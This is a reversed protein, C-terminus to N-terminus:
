SNKTSGAIIASSMDNSIKFKKDNEYLKLSSELHKQVRDSDMCMLIYLDGRKPDQWMNKRIAGSLPLEEVVNKTIDSFKKSVDENSIVSPNGKNDVGKVASKNSLVYDEVTKTINTKIQSAINARGDSEAQSIQMRLGGITSDSIGVGCVDNSNKSNAYPDLVWEPGGISDLSGKDKSCSSLFSILLVFYLPKMSFFVFKVCCM